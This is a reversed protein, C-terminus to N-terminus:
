TASTSSITALPTCAITMAGASELAKTGTSRRARSAPTTTTFMSLRRSVSTNAASFSV